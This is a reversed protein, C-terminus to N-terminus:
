SFLQSLGESIEPIRKKNKKKEPVRDPSNHCGQDGWVSLGTRLDPTIWAKGPKKEKFLRFVKELRYVLVM